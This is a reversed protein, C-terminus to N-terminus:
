RKTFEQMSKLYKLPNIPQKDKILEFHLHVGSTEGTDGMRGIVNGMNVIDGERVSISDLHAYLTAWKENFEILIMKGYGKYKKGTYIVLGYHAAKIPTGREGGLDVGQHNPNSRPAFSQTLKIYDVPWVLRFPGKPLYNNPRDRPRQPRYPGSGRYHGLDSPKYDNMSRFPGCSIFSLCVLLYVNHLYLLHRYPHMFNKM